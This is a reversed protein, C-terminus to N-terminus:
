GWGRTKRGSRRKRRTEYHNVRLMTGAHEFRNPAEAAEMMGFATPPATRWPPSARRIQGNVTDRTPATRRVPVGGRAAGRVHSPTAVRTGVGSAPLAGHALNVQRRRSRRACAACHRARLSWRGTRRASGDRARRRPYSFYPAVTRTRAKKASQQTGSLSSASPRLVM